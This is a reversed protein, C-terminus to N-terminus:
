MIFVNLVEFFEGGDGGSFFFVLGLFSRVLQMFPRTKCVKFQGLDNEQQDPSSLASSLSERM